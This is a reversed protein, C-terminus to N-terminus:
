HVANEFHEIQPEKQNDLRLVAIVDIRWDGDLEPNELLYAQSAEILHIRKQDTIAEEPYGFAKSSRTKVEVFVTVEDKQAILDIEGYPTRANQQLVKYGRRVLYGAVLNEGWQGLEKRSMTSM